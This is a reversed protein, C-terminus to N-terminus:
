FPAVDSDHAAKRRDDVSQTETKRLLTIPDQNRSRRIHTENPIELISSPSHITNRGDLYKITTVPSINQHRSSPVYPAPPNIFNYLTLGTVTAM